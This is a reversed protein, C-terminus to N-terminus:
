RARTKYHVTKNDFNSVKKLKDKFVQKRGFTKRKDSFPRIRFKFICNKIFRTTPLNKSSVFFDEYKIQFEVNHECIWGLTVDKELDPIEDSYKNDLPVNSFFRWRM